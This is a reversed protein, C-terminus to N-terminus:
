GIGRALKEFICNRDLIARPAPELGYLACLDVVARHDGASALGPFGLIIGETAPDSM